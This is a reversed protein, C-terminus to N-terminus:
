YYKRGDLINREDTIKGYRKFIPFWGNESGWFIPLTNDPTNYYFGILLQGDDFGLPYNSMSNHSGVALRGYFECFDKVEEKIIGIREDSFILSNNSFAKDREDLITTAIVEISRDERKIKTKADETTILFAAYRKNANINIMDIYEIAQEGSFSADDIFVLNEYVKGDKREFREKSLNNEQRFSYLINNGSESSNGLSMFLTNSIISKVKEDINSGNANKIKEHIFLDYLEKCMHKINNMTYFSFHALLWLAIRKENIEKEFYKGDFNSLWRDVKNPSILSDWAVNSTKIIIDKLHEEDISNEIIREFEEKNLM